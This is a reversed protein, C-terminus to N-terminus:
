NKDLPGPTYNSPVDFIDKSTKIDDDDLEYGIKIWNYRFTVSFTKESLDFM